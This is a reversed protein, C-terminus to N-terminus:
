EKAVRLGEITMGRDISRLSTALSMLVMACGALASTEAGIREKTRVECHVTVKKEAENVSHTIDIGSIGLTHAILVLSDAHKAGLIGAMRAQTWIESGAAACSTVFAQYAAANMVVSGEAVAKGGERTLQQVAPKANQDDQDYYTM